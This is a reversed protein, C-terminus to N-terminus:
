RPQEHVGGCRHSDCLPLAEPTDSVEVRLGERDLVRQTLPPDRRGLHCIQFTRLDRLKNRFKNRRKPIEECREMNKM